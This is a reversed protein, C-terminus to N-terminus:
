KGEEPSKKQWKYLTKRSIGLDLAARTAVGDARKLAMSIRARKEEEPLRGFSADVAFVNGSGASQQGPLKATAEEREKPLKLMGKGHELNEDVVYSIAEILERINMSWKQCLLWSVLDAHLEQGCAHVKRLHYLALAVIDAPRDRLPPVSLVHNLRGKFDTRWRGQLMLESLPTSVAGVLHVDVSIENDYGLPLIEGPDVARLLMAQLDHSAEQMEDLFLTGGEARRFLGERNEKAGDFAGKKHGFLVDVIISNDTFATALSYAVYKGKRASTSSILRALYEKGTGTEGELLVFLRARKAVRELQMMLKRMCLSATLFPVSTGKRRVPRERAVSAVLETREFQLFLRGARIIDGEQLVEEQEGLRMVERYTPGTFMTEPQDTIRLLFSGNTSGCDKVSYSVGKASKHARILLHQKSLEPDALSREFLYMGRGLIVEGTNGELIEDLSAHDGVGRHSIGPLHLLTLGLRTSTPDDLVGKGQIATGSDVLSSRSDKRKM